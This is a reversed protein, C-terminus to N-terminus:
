QGWRTVLLVALMGAAALGLGTHANTRTAGSEIYLPYLLDYPFKPLLPPASPVYETAGDNALPIFSVTAFVPFLQATSTDSATFQWTSTSYTYEAALVRRQPNNFAGADVTVLELNVATTLGSCTRTNSDWM